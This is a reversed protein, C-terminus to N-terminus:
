AGSATPFDLTLSTGAPGSDITLEGGVAKARGRMSTLGRGGRPNAPLGQGDDQIRVRVRGDDLRGNEFVIEQGGSHRIANSVAEQLIRLIQLTHRAGPGPLDDTLGHSVRLRIGAAEIQPRVRHEFSRFAEALGEEATDMSDVILRLDAISSQLGEEIVKPESAGGRVQMMLGLLQGGIGDHMDRVIRQREEIVAQRELIQKQAEYSRALEADQRKLRAALIDNARTVARRAESAERAISAVVGLGLLLGVPGAAYFTLPLEPHFPITVAFANDIADVALALLCLMLSLRELWRGDRRVVTGFSLAGLGLVALATLLFSIAFALAKFASRIGPGIVLGAVTVMVLYALLGVWLWALAKMWRDVRAEGALLHRAFAVIVSVELAYYIFRTLEFPIQIPTQFSIFYARAAWVMMLIMLTRIRVRDEVPWNTVACLLTAFVLFSIAILPLTTTVLTVFAAARAAESAPGISFPALALISSQSEVEVEIENVGPRIFGHPLMYYLAKGDAAGRESDLPVNPQIVHDNLRIEQLGPTAGLFFALQGFPERAEFPIRFAVRSGGKDATSRYMPENQYIADYTPGTPRGDAGVASYQVSARPEGGAPRAKQEGVFLLLGFGLIVGMVVLSALFATIGRSRKMAPAGPSLRPDDFPRAM